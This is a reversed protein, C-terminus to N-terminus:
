ASEEEGGDGDEELAALAEEMARGTDPGYSGDVALGNAEQFAMVAQQTAAGYTNRSDGDVPFGVAALNDQLTGVDPHVSGRILLHHAM